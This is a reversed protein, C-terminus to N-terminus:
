VVSKIEKNEDLIRNYYKKIKILSVILYIFFYLIMIFFIIFFIETKGNTLESFMDKIMLPYIVALLILFPFNKGYIEKAIKVRESHFTYMNPVEDGICEKTWITYNDGLIKAMHVNHWGADKNINYYGFDVKKKLDIYYKLNKKDTTYFIFICQPLIRKLEFGEYAMRQLWEEIRDPEYMWLPKFRIKRKGSSKKLYGKEIINNALSYELSVKNIKKYFLIAILLIIINIPTVFFNFMNKTFNINEGSIYIFNSKGGLIHCMLLYISSLIVFIIDTYIIFGVKKLINFRNIMEFNEPFVKIEEIPKENKLVRWRSSKSLIQWGERKVSELLEKNEKFEIKYSIEKSVGKKFKFVSINFNVDVLEYGKTAMEKLWEETKLIDISWFGRFVRKIM